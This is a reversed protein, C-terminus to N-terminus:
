DAEGLRSFCKVESQLFHDRAGFIILLMWIGRMAKESATPVFLVDVRDVFSLIFIKVSLDTIDNKKAGLATWDLTRMFMLYEFLDYAITSKCHFM